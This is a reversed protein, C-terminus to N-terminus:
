EYNGGLALAVYSRFAIRFLGPTSSIMHCLLRNRPSLLSFDQKEESIMKRVAKRQEIFQDLPEMVLRAYSYMQCRLLAEKATPKLMEDCESLIRQRVRIPDFIKHDNLKGRSASGPRTRYSYLCVDQFVSQGSKSFLYFNMLMDENNRLSSDMWADLGSFLERRYLKDCLGPEVLREELLDALGTYRDQQRVTGSGGHNRLSGDPHLEKYGCHSIDAHYEVANEHLYAYFEPDVVDDADVFGVWEGTAEALGRLRAATVGSNEQRIGMIHPFKACYGELVAGTGDTSGDDVVIIELNEYTQALLSDLCQPLWPANNYTPVIVSIKEVM